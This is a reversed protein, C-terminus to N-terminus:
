QSVEFLLLGLWVKPGLEGRSVRKRFARFIRLDSKRTFAIFGTMVHGRMSRFLGTRVEM